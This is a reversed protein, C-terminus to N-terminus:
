KGQKFGLVSANPIIGSPPTSVELGGGEVRVGVWGHEEEEKKPLSTWLQLLNKGAEAKVSSPPPPVGVKELAVNSLSEGGGRVSM